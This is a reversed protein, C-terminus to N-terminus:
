GRRLRTLLDAEDTCSLAARVLVDDSLQDVGPPDDDVQLIRRPPGRENRQTPDM